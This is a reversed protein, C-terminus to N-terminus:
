AQAEDLCESMATQLRRLRDVDTRNRTWERYLTDIRQTQRRQETPGVSVSEASM